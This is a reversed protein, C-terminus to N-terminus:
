KRKLEQIESEQKDIRVQQTEMKKNQEIVYLTLEEIKKLLLMNMEGLQVGNKEMEKASPVEPLHKNQDIYNKIEELSTLKYDKEFVYDPGPATVTVKVEQAHIQGSVTLKADPALTGIGVNGGDPNLLLKTNPGEGEGIKIKTEWTNPNNGIQFCVAGETANRFIRFGYTGNARSLNISHNNDSAIHLQASAVPNSIGIGVNGASNIIMRQKTDDDGGSSFRIDQASIIGLGNVDAGMLITSSPRYTLTYNTGANYSQSHHAAFGYRGGNGQGFLLLSRGMLGSNFIRLAADGSTRLVDIDYGPTATGIGVKGSTYNDANNDWQAWTLQPAFCLALAFVLNKSKM